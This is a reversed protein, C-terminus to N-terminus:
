VQYRIESRSAPYPETLAFLSALEAVERGMM